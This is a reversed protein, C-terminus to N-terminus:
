PNTGSPITIVFTAGGGSTEEVRIEGGVNSVIRHVTALGLGTGAEKTTFYPAFVQSRLTESIGPGNDAFRLEVTDGVRTGTLVIRGGKGRFAEKANNYLNLIVERLEDADAHVIVDDDIDLRVEIGLQTAEVEILTMADRVAESLGSSAPQTQRDRALSLFRSIIDNLRKTESRIKQTFGLYQDPDRTPTFETALRQVAISITNLPNRIEHAVGAALNGMESLRERRAAEREYKKLATIDYMVLVAATGSGDDYTVRSRAILLDRPRGGLTWKIEAESGAVGSSTFDDWSLEPATVVETWRRGEVGSVGLIEEGERNLLRIVGSDDIAAVGIRMQEFITDTLSKIRSVERSLERRRRRSRAYLFILTVLGVLGVTLIIMQWNYARSVAYYGDLSMGVRLVGVRYQPTAFSKVLELAKEGRFEIIRSSVTDQELAAQLFSDSEIALIKGPDTSSFIIGEGTQYIIYQVDPSRAMRQALYGIGTKRLAERYTEAGAAIVIVQGLNGVIELYYQVAEGTKEDEDMAMSFPVDPSALLGAVENRVILPPQVAGDRAAGGMIFSSDTGFIYVGELDHTAAFDSLRQSTLRSPEESLLSTVLDSYRRNQLRDYFGGAAIANAAGEVLGNTFAQGQRVLLDFSDRRSERIGIITIIFIIAAPLIIAAPVLRRDAISAGPRLPRLM